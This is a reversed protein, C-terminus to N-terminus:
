SKTSNVHRITYERRKMGKYSLIHHGRNGPDVLNIGMGGLYYVNTGKLSKNCSTIIM